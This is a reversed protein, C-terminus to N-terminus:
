QGVEYAVVGCFLDYITKDTGPTKVIEKSKRKM